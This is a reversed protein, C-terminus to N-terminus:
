GSYLKDTQSLDAGLRRGGESMTRNLYCTLVGKEFCSWIEKSYDSPFFDNTHVTNLVTSNLFITTQTATHKRRMHSFIKTM